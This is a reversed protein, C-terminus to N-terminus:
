RWSAMEKMLTRRARFLKGRVTQESEGVVHAIEEYSLGHLERLIWCARQGPRLNALAHALAATAATSEAARAPEGGADHATPEAVTDLSVSPAQARRVNLCRNTVIRYMWTRFAADGRFQPLRRWASIFGDQVAEEADSVDGLMHYALALLRGSHRHVLVAFADDDGEAARAVLIRDEM